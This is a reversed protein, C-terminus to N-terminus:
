SESLVSNTVPVTDAATRCYLFVTGSEGVTKYKSKIKWYMRIKVSIKLLLENSLRYKKIMKKENSSIDRM